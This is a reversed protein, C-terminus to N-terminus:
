PTQGRSSQRPTTQGPTSQGPTTQGRSKADGRNQPAGGGPAQPQAVTVKSGNQLKEFSSNAVVDGPNIGEVATQGADTVGTKINRIQATGNEILYVFATQGNHQIASTPILTVGQLTKVLLRTNVFQNPFLTGDKNDFVARLKVTGTTTDIQNDVSLLKGSAIKTQETRDFADVQLQKKQRVQAQVDALSDEAITFIVTIPQEQTVVALVTNGNAQVVNGPDVLRLGVRGNIPAVIHCYGVQVKDFQVIGEDNKVTGQDQLVIKEQDDLTQKPIGNREWAQRYREVDMRAQGLVNTDRELTGEAQMLQAEYPRPDIDLLPDGRKVPQGEKYYVKIVMGTVQSTISATYTPTVTGIEDLYVGINGKQATAVAATVPGGAGRKPATATQQTDSGHRLVLWFIVAFALLMLAWILARKGKSGGNGNAPPLQHRTDVTASPLQHQPDQYPPDITPAPTKNHM